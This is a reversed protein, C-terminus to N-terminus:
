HAEKTNKKKSIGKFFFKAKKKKKNRVHRQRKNMTGVVVVV